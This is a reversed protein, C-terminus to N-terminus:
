VDIMGFVKFSALHLNQTVFLISFIKIGWIVRESTSLLNSLIAGFNFLLFYFSLLLFYFTFLSDGYIFKSAQSWEEKEKHTGKVKKSKGQETM